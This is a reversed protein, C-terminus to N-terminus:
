YERSYISYVFRGCIVLGQELWDDEGYASGRTQLHREILPHREGCNPCTAPDRLYACDHHDRGSLSEVLSSAFRMSGVLRAQRQTAVELEELKAEAETLRADFDEDLLDPLEQLKMM